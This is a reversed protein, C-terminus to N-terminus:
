RIFGRPTGSLKEIKPSEMDPIVSSNLFIPFFNLLVEVSVILFRHLFRLIRKLFKPSNRFVPQPTGTSIGVSDRLLGLSDGPIEVPVGWNTKLFEGFIKSSFKATKVYTKSLRSLLKALIKKMNKEVGWPNGVHLGSFNFFQNPSGRPNM